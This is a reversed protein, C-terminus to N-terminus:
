EALLTKEMSQLFNDVGIFGIERLGKQEQGSKSLFILTPMGTVGYRAMLAKTSADPSTCDVKIMNFRKSKEVVVDDSFTERDLQKCPACWDAYFDFFLPKSDSVLEEISQSKYKIWNMDSPKSHIANNTWFIGFVIIIIGLVGRVMKFKKTYGSDHDLFGLLLGAFIALIGILFGLKDYVQELQPIIFYIAVGVLLIGFFKRLWVMWMGSQPLKNLLGSFTALVLYPLGLGIGMMFFLITGKVVLGMKAILGVLGIIIGAACPAIIVGVTLGMFLAGAMGQRAGGLKTMLSTPVMIEFAGFMSAAMALIITVIVIIFWPSQFLFGWQKGALGSVLGLLAFAIAIGILYALASIFASGRSKNAQGGFYSVTLPIVPYVCPTLNLALGVLLFALMAYGLGKELIGQAKREEATLEQTASNSTETLTSLDSFVDSNTKTVPSGPKVVEIELEFAKEGPPYCVVDDCGQYSVKGKIKLLGTALNPSTSITSYVLINGEFVPIKDESFSFSKLEAKPFLPKGFSINEVSKFEVVTPIQFEEKPSNSNIHLGKEITISIAIQLEEGAVATDQSPLISVSIVNKDMGFQAFSSSISLSILLYFFYKKM